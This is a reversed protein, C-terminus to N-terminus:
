YHRILKDVYINATKWSRVIQKVGGGEGAVM